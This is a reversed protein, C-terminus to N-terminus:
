VLWEGEANVNGGSISIVNFIVSQMGQVDFDYFGAATVDTFPPTAPSCVNTCPLARWTGSYMQGEVQVDFSTATGWINLRLTSSGGPSVGTGVQGLATITSALTVQQTISGSLQTFTNITKEAEQQASGYGNITITGSVYNSIRARVYALDAVVVAYYGSTTTTSAPQFTLSGKKTANIPQWNTNDTSCEFNITANFAAGGPQVDFVFSALSIVNAPTGNSNATIANQLANSGTFSTLNIANVTTAIDWDVLGSNATYIQYKKLDTLYILAGEDFNQASFNDTSLANYRHEQPIFTIAM